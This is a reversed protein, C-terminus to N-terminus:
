AQELRALRQDISRLLRVVEDLRGDITAPVPDGPMSAAAATPPAEAPSTGAAGAEERLEAALQESPVFTEYKGSIATARAQGRGQLRALSARVVAREPCEDYQAYSYADVGLRRAIEYESLSQHREKAGARARFGECLARLVRRDLADLDDASEQAPPGPMGTEDPMEARSM